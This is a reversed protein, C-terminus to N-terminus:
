VPADTDMGRLTESLMLSLLASLMQSSFPPPSFYRSVRGRLDSTSAASQSDYTSSTGM